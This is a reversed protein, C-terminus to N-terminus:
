LNIFNSSARMIFNFFLSRVQVISVMEVLVQKAHAIIVQFQIQVFLMQRVIIEEEKVWVNM